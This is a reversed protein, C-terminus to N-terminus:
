RRYIDKGPKAAKELTTWGEDEWIQRRTNMDVAGARRLIDSIEDEDKPNVAVTLVVGGRKLGEAYFEADDQSIGLDIFAGIISGTTVGLGAGIATLGVTTALTSALTGTAIVPGIGPVVLTSLGALLGILGGAIAGTAAAKEGVIERETTSDDRAVVSIRDDDVGYKRLAQVAGDANSYYDFLGVVTNTNMTKDGKLFYLTQIEACVNSIDVARQNGFLLM